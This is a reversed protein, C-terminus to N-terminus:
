QTSCARGASAKAAAGTCNAAVAEDPACCRSPTVGVQVVPAQAHEAVPVPAPIIDYPPRLSVVLLALAVGAVATGVAAVAPHPRVPHPGLWAVALIAGTGMVVVSGVIDLLFHNATGLVVVVTIAPYAAGVARVWWRDSVLVLVAGAWLAWGVHLSPMAAYQNSLQALGPESLSGWTNFYWFTDVYGLDPLLRPPALPLLWYGLLALLSGLMLANRSMAYATRHRRWLWVLVVVPVLMHLVAYYYNMAVAVSEHGMVWRNIGLEVDIGLSREVSLLWHAFAEATSEQGAVMNRVQRYLLYVALVMGAEWLVPGMGPRLRPTRAAAVAAPTWREDTAAADDKMPNVRDGLGLGWV